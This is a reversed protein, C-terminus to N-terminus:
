EISFKFITKENYEDGPRLIGDNLGPYNIGNPDYQTELCVAHHMEGTFGGKLLEGKPYNYTYVVVSPYTTYIRMVRGSAKDQLVVASKNIDTSNLLWPHDYGNAPHNKLCSSNIDRGILKPATFDMPTGKVSKVATGIMNDDLEVYRDGNIFLEEDTILRKYNGSLNFYSHNTMNLLTPKDTRGRYELKLKNENNLTYVVEVQVNGPYGEEMDPSSTSFSVAAENENKLIKYNWRKFSFGEFGGHLNTIGKENKNLMYEVGDLTFKGNAIRGSTRGCIMGFYTSCKCYDEINEYALVVNEARGNKDPVLLELIAAGYNMLRLSINNDNELYIISIDQGNISSTKEVFAKM